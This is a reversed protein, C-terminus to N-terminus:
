RKLFRDQISYVYVKLSRWMQFVDVMYFLIACVLLPASILFWVWIRLTHTGGGLEQFNMGFFSTTFSLPVFMFALFTLKGMHATLIIAERSEAIVIESMLTGIAETCHEYLQKNRKLLYAYDEKLNQASGETKQQLKENSARPWHPFQMNELSSCAEQNQHLHLYLIHKLNKLNPLCDPEQAYHTDEFKNLMGACFTLFQLEAQAVLEFVERLAYLTDCAMLNPRLSRGYDIHLTSASQRSPRTPQDSRPGPRDEELKHSKLALMPKYKMIPQTRLNEAPQRTRTM